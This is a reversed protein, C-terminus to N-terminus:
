ISPNQLMFGIVDGHSIATLHLKDTQEILYAAPQININPIKNLQEAPNQIMIPSISNTNGEAIGGVFYIWYGDKKQM